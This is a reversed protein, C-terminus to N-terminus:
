KVYVRCRAKAGDESAYVYAKGKSVATIQGSKKDVRVVSSNSTTWTPLRGSSVKAKITTKEGKGLTIEDSALTIEPSEVTVNCSVRVGDVTATIVASGHKVATITGDESVTAVSKKKSKYVVPRKSSVEATLKYTQGKFLTVDDSSLLIQPEAVTVNCVTKSGDISATVSCVGPKLATVLGKESVKAIGPRSSKWKVAKGNSTTATIGTMEGCDLTITKKSLKITTERVTVHCTAKAKKRRATITVSGKKKADIVGYSSVSAVKSNSSKYTVKGGDTSLAFLTYSDGIDLVVEPTSIVVACLLDELVNSKASTNHSPVALCLCISLLIISVIKKKM